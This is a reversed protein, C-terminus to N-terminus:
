RGSFYYTLLRFPQLFADPPGISNKRFSICVASLSEYYSEFPSGRTLYLLGEIWMTLTNQYVCCLAITVKRLDQQCENLVIDSHYTYLQHGRYVDPPVLSSPLSQAIVSLVGAIFTWCGKRSGILAICMFFPFITVASSAICSIRSPSVITVAPNTPAPNASSSAM